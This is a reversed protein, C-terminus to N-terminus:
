LEVIDARLYVKTVVNGARCVFQTASKSPAGTTISQINVVANGGERLAREYLTKIGSLFAWQCSDYDSKGFANTTRKTTYNGFFHQQEPYPQDGFYFDVGTFSKATATEMADIIPQNLTTDRALAVGSFQMLMAMSIAIIAKQYLNTVQKM